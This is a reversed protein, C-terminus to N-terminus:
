KNAKVISWDPPRVDIQLAFECVEALFSRWVFAMVLCAVWNADERLVRQSKVLFSKRVKAMGVVRKAVKPARDPGMRVVFEVGSARDIKNRTGIARRITHAFRRTKSM